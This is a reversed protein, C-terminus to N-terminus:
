DATMREEVNRDTCYLIFDKCEPSVKKWFPQSFCDDEINVDKIAKITMKQTKKNMPNFGAFLTYCILGAAWM